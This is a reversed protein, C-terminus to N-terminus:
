HVKVCYVVVILLYLKSRGSSTGQNLAVKTVVVILLLV